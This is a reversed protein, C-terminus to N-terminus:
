DFLGKLKDELKDKIKDKVEEEVRQRLLRELDPKVSPAALPGTIKLPIIAETFEDLEDASAGALFEPRELIRASLNYDISAAPIDIQGSGTLQMFPLEAYLDDSRMTGDTVVGTMKVKSFETKAPLAPIPAEEGKLLARARRLEYWIDTGQYAGDQLELAMNGSLNKQIAVTDSGKGSLAFSGDISGSVNEQDFMAKALSALDVGAIKENLSLSPTKGAVNIRVDGDYTGGFLKSSVPFLRMKGAASTVGLSIDDFVINGLTARKLQAKGRINLPKILDVPIEVPVVDDGDNAPAEGVPEMYRALAITDGKLDFQYTGAANLPVSLSGTFSTDDLAIAINSLKVATSTVQATADVSLRDLVTPDATVPPPTDFLQMLSRPSFEKIAITASPTLEGAYSFPQVDASVAVDFISMELQALTAMSAQRSLEISDTQLDISTPVTAIGEVDGVISVKSLLLVGSESDFALSSAFTIAGTLDAPQVDFQLGAEVPVASGDDTLRGVHLNLQEIAIADGTEDSRYAVSADIVEISNINLGSPASSEDASQSASDAVLDSWNDTGQRNVSLNLRLGEIDAAGVVVEQRFIAPLLRVSFSAREFSAMPEDGFGAANGLTSKGVDVALWPFLDLSIDGEITLDRGTQDKVTTSIQERFDNPDFFVYLAAAALVFLMAFGAVFWLLYKIVRGM